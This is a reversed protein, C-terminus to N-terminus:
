PPASPAIARPSSDPAPKKTDVPPRPPRLAEALLPLVKDRCDPIGARGSLGNPHSYNSLFIVFAMKDPLIWVSSGSRADWGYSRPGLKGVMFGGAMHDGGPIGLSPSFARGMPTFKEAGPLTSLTVLPLTEKLANALADAFVVAGTHGADNGLAMAIPDAPEAWVMRGLSKSYEGPATISRHAPLANLSSPKMGYRDIILEQVLESYKKGFAKEVLLGLLVENLDSTEVQAGPPGVTPVLAIWAIIDDRTKLTDPATYVAPLGSSQHLLQDITIAEKNTDRLAPLLDSIKQDANLKGQMLAAIALPNTFLPGTLDRVDYLTDREARRLQPDTMLYGISIPITNSAIRDAYIVAGPIDKKEVATAVIALAEIYKAADINSEELWDSNVGLSIVAAHRDLIEKLEPPFPKAGGQLYPEQAFVPLTLLLLATAFLRRM